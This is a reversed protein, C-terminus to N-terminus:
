ADGNEGAYDLWANILRGLDGTRTFCQRIRRGEIGYLKKVNQELDDDTDANEICYLYARIYNENKAPNALAKPKGSVRRGHEAEYNKAFRYAFMRIKDPKARRLPSYRTREERALKALVAGATPDYYREQNFFPSDYKGMETGEASATHVTIM